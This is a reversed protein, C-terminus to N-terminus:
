GKKDSAGGPPEIVYVNLPAGHQTIQTVRQFGCREYFACAVALDAGALVKVRDVGDTAAQALAQSLLKRGVGGGRVSTDVGISLIEAPPLDGAAQKAPYRLTDFVEKLVWPSAAQPFAAWGLRWLRARLVRKYLGAVNRSYACFGAVGDETRAVWVHSEADDAIGLYLQRLFRQGLKSLFGETITGAHLRGVDRADRPQMPEITM